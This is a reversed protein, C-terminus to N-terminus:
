SVTVANVRKSANELLVDYKSAILLNSNQIFILVILGLTSKPKNKVLYLIFNIKMKYSFRLTFKIVYICLENRSAKHNSNSEYGYM